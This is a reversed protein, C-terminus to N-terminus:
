PVAHSGAEIWIKRQQLYNLTRSYRRVSTDLRVEYDIAYWRKAVQFSPMTYFLDRPVMYKHQLMSWVDTPTAM